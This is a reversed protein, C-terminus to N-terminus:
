ILRAFNNRCILKSRLIPPKRRKARGNKAPRKDGKGNPRYLIGGTLAQVGGEANGERDNHKSKASKVVRNGVHEIEIKATRKSPLHDAIFQYADKSIDDAAYDKGQHVDKFFVCFLPILKRYFDIPLSLAGSKKNSIVFFTLLIRRM